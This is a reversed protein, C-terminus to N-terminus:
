KTEALVIEQRRLAFDFLSPKQIKMKITPAVTEEYLKPVRDKGYRLWEEMTIRQDKPATDARELALGEVALAYTLLGHSLQGSGVALNDGQTAALIQMGKDYAM